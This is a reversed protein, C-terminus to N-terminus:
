LLEASAITFECPSAFISKAVTCPILTLFLLRLFSKITTERRSSAGNSIVAFVSASAESHLLAILSTKSSIRRFSSSVWLMASFDYLMILLVSTGSSTFFIFSFFTMDLFSVIEIMSLMCLLFSFLRAARSRAAVYAAGGRSRLDSSFFVCAVLPRAAVDMLRDDVFVVGAVEGAAIIVRPSDAAKLMPFDFVVAGFFKLEESGM